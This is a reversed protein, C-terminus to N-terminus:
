QSLWISDSEATVKSNEFYFRVESSSASETDCFNELMLTFRFPSDDEKIEIPDDLDTWSRDDINWAHKWREHCRVFFQGQVKVFKSYRGMTGGTGPIRQLIRVGIRSFVLTGGSINRISIDFVPDGALHYKRRFVGDDGKDWPQDAQSLNNAFLRIVDFELLTTSEPAKQPGQADALLKAIADFGRQEALERATKGQGNEVTADAGKALLARICAESGSAAALMLATIRNTTTPTVDAGNSLLADVIKSDANKAAIMLNTATEKYFLKGGGANPDGGSGLLVQVMGLHRKEVACTLATKEGDKANPDAGAALVVELTAQGGNNAASVVLPGVRAAPLTKLAGRALLAKVVESQGEHSVAIELAAAMADDVLHASGELLAKVLALNRSRVADRLLSKGAEAVTKPAGKNVLARVIDVYGRTAAEELAPRDPHTPVDPNMGADLFLQVALLDQEKIRNVFEAASYPISMAALKLRAATRVDDPTRPVAIPVPGTRLFAIAYTAAVRCAYERWSKTTDADKEKDALDSVGRVMFFGPRNASQLAASAVGAAEMEVGILKSWVERLQAALSEDAVVKNGTCIPDIHVKPQGPTPRVAAVSRMWDSDTFNRAATLLRQDARYVQWRISPVGDKVKQQEYDAIQDAVLVDGLAVSAKAIGGAIGILLVYRPQWRRVADGTANAAETPGMNALPVVVISYRAVQGDAFTVPVEASYYIRIDDQSAPVRKYGPLQGLVADREETLPTVIVFDIEMNDTALIRHATIEVPYLTANWL